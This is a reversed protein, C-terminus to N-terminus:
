LASFTEEEREAKSTNGPFAREGRTGAAVLPVERRHKAMLHGKEGWMAASISNEIKKHEELEASQSGRNLEQQLALM